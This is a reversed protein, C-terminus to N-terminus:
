GVLAHFREVIGLQLLGSYIAYGGLALFALTILYLAIWVPTAAFLPLFWLAKNGSSFREAPYLRVWHALPLVFWLASVALGAGGLVLGSRWLDDQNWHHRLTPGGSWGVLCWTALAIAPLAILLLYKIAKGHALELGPGSGGGGKGAKGGKDAKKPKKDSKEAM